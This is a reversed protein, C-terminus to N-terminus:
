RRKSDWHKKNIKRKEDHKPRNLSVKCVPKKGLWKLCVPFAEILRRIVGVLIIWENMPYKEFWKKLFSVKKVTTTTGVFDGVMEVPQVVIRVNQVNVPRKIVRYVSRFSISHFIIHVILWSCSVVTRSCFRSPLSVGGPTKSAPTVLSLFLRLYEVETRWSAGGDELKM